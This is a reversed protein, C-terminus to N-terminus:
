EGLLATRITPNPIKRTQSGYFTDHRVTPIPPAGGSPPPETSTPPATSIPPLIGYYIGSADATFPPSPTGGNGGGGGGNGGGNSHLVILPCSPDHGFRAIPEPVAFGGYAGAVYRTYYRSRVVVGDSIRIKDIRDRPIGSVPLYYIHFHSSDTPDIGIRPVFNGLSGMEYTQVLTGAPNYRRVFVNAPDAQAQAYLILVTDDSLVISEVAIHMSVLDVFISEVGTNLDRKWIPQGTSKVGFYVINRANNVALPGSGTITADVRVSFLEAGASSYEKITPRFVDSAAWFRNTSHHARIAVGTGVSFPISIQSVYSSNYIEIHPSTYAESLMLTGDALRDGAEGIVINRIYRNIIQDRDASLISSIPPANYTASKNFAQNLFYGDTDTSETHKLVSLNLVASTPTLDPRKEFSVFYTVGVTVPFQTPRDDTIPLWSLLSSEPGQYVHTRVVYNNGIFDGYGWLGIMNDGIQATYKYWVTYTTGADYVNQTTSFPLSTIETATAATINSPPPM